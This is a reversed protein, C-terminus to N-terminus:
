LTDKLEKRFWDEIWSRLDPDGSLIEALANAFLVIAAEESDPNFLKLVRHPEYEVEVMKWDFDLVDEVLQDVTSLGDFVQVVRYYPREEQADTLLVYTFGDGIEDDLIKQM